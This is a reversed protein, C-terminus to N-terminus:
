GPIFCSMRWQRVRSNFPAMAAQRMEALLEPDGYADLARRCTGFLGNGSLDSYLFGTEGDGAFGSTAFLV